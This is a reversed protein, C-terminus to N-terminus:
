VESYELCDEYFRHAWETSELPEECKFHTHLHQAIRIVEAIDSSTSHRDDGLLFDGFKTFYPLGSTSIIPRSTVTIHWSSTVTWRCRSDRTAPSVGHTFVKAM